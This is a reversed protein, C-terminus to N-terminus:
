LAKKLFEMVAREYTERDLVVAENHGAKPVTLRGCDKKKGDLRHLFKQHTDSIYDDNEGHIMLLPAHKRRLLGEVDVFRKKSIKQCYWFGLDTFMNVVWSPYHEGFFNPRVLIPAWKRIYDRFIERMSFLGDTIVGRVSQEGFSAALALDAGKSVGFLVIKAGPGFAKKAWRIVLELRQAEEETPWQTLSNKGPESPPITFDVSLVTFSLDPFFYAYKEWSEKASGSDHCFIVVKDSNKREVLVAAMEHDGSDLISIHEGTGSIAVEHTPNYKLGLFINSILRTYKFTSHIFYAAVLIVPVFILLCLLSM